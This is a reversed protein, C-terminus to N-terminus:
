KIVSYLNAEGNIGQFVKHDVVIFGNDELNTLYKCITEFSLLGVADMLGRLSTRYKKHMQTKYKLFGYIYFASVGLDDKKEMMEEFVKYDIGHTNAIDYFTGDLVNENYTDGTRHFGKTPIKIKFNRNQTIVSKGYERRYDNITTFNLINDDDLTWSLPYDDTTETYGMSDLVGNKKILYDIRKEAKTYGLKMKILAQTIKEDEYHECYRYLYSVYYYYTYAFATHKYTSINQKLDDFIENPMYIMKNLM